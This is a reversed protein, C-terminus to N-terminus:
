SFLQYFSFCCCSRVVRDCISFLVSRKDGVNGCEEFGRCKGSLRFYCNVCESRFMPYVSRWVDYLSLVDDDSLVNGVQYVKVRRGIFLLLAFESDYLYAYLAAQLLHQRSCRSRSVSSKIEVPVVRGDVEFEADPRGALVFKDKVVKLKFKGKSLCDCLELVGKEVCVGVFLHDVQPSRFKYGGSIKGIIAKRCSVIEGVFVVPVNFRGFVSKMDMYDSFVVASRRLLYRYLERALKEAYVPQM